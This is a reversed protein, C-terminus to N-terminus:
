KGTEPIKMGAKRLGEFMKATLEASVNFKAMENRAQAPYDPYSRLVEMVAAGAESAHGLQGHVAALAMNTWYFNPAAAHSKTAYSLAQEYDGKLYHYYFPPVYYWWPPNPNLALARDILVKGREWDGAYSTYIAAGAIAATNNPNLAVAREAEVKFRDFNRQFFLSRALFWHGMQNASDLRVATQAANVARALSNPRPDFGFVYEDAFTVALWAWADAYKPHTEVTRELCERAAKHLAPDFSDFYVKGRLVCDYAEVHIDSQASLQEKKNQAITGRLPDGIKAVVKSTIEDQVAFIDKTTLDRDFTEAWLHAGTKADLLQANIRVRALERRVSGELVYQANLKAGVERVDVPKGKFQFTSNRAIVFLDRFQSLATIIDETLGDSFYEQSADGSMNTFPLVAIAPGTPMALVPDTAQAIASPHKLGFQWIGIAAVGAVLLAVLAIPLRSLKKIPVVPSAQKITSPEGTFNVRYARVPKDINKVTHEGLYEYVLPLKNGIADHTAGSICIGGPEALTELRAAVNVGNGYVEGRDVIVEGLNLGIRFQVRKDDPVAQNKEKIARQVAVACHLADSVTTFDALVADGAYHKVEGRHAKITEAFLDLYASLTRHTGAEDAGTLRSYGEVDAYLIAALKHPLPAAQNLADPSPSEM